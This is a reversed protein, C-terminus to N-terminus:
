LGASKIGAVIREGVAGHRLSNLQALCDQRQADLDPIDYGLYEAASLGAMQGEVMAASAEEVGAADGAIFINPISTRLFEDRCAVHGGLAPIYAMKCGAQWLLESLPSLGVSICLADAELVKETGPIGQANKDLQWITVSELRDTGNASKVSHQALIPVGMRRLKSAHVLYGGIKGSRGLVALVNVGAQLLQYSVILGINGWGVMVVRDAPKIGYQNMLTQVAGAGFVGPLDNGPFPTSKESAGTAVIVAKPYIQVYAGDIEASWVGNDYAALVTANTKLTVGPMAKLKDILIDAIDFGRYSAYQKESGFFMHTQKVLQGGPVNGRELILVSGGAAGVAQAACLGAPGAGVVLLDIHIM